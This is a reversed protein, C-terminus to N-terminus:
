SKRVPVYLTYVGGTRPRWGHPIPVAFQALLCNAGRRRVETSITGISPPNRTLLSAVPWIHRPMLLYSARFYDRSWSDATIVCVSNAPLAAAANRLADDLAPTAADDQPVPALGTSTVLPQRDFFPAEVSIRTAAVVIVLAVLVLALTWTPTPRDAMDPRVPQRVRSRGVSRSEGMLAACPGVLARRPGRGSRRSCSGGHEAM